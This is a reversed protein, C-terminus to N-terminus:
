RLDNCSYIFFRNTTSSRWANNVWRVDQYAVPPDWEKGRLGVVPHTLALIDLLPERRCLSAVASRDFVAPEPFPAPPCSTEQGFDQTALPKFSEYRHQYTLATGRYFLAGTGQACSFYSSRKLVFWPVRVDGEWYITQHKPVLASLAPPATNATEVFKTWPTREDWSFAAVVVLGIALPALCWAPFSRANGFARTQLVIAGLAIAMLAPGRVLQWADHQWGPIGSRWHLWYYAGTLTLGIPIGLLLLVINRVTPSLPARRREFMYVLGAVALSPFVAFYEVKMDRCALLGIVAVVLAVTTFPAVVGRMRLILPAVFLNAAVALIWTARYQQADVVLVNHALDAGVYDGLMGGAGVVAAAILFRREAPEAMVVAFGALMALDAMQIWNFFSWTGLFCFFDRVRVVSVWAPDFTVLIRAFPQIGLYALGLAAAAGLVALGWWLRRAGAQYVFLAGLGPLTMIPHVFASCGLLILASIARGRLMLGLAWLTMAEAFLRPTAWQEAYNFIVGGPLAIAMAVALLRTRRERFLGGALYILGSIWCAQGLITLVIGANGIGFAALLPRYFTTFLTFNDASGFQFYFDAAFHGPVLPRLAQVTYFRADQFLGIYPRTALWLGVVLLFLWIAAHNEEDSTSPGPASPVPPNEAGRRTQRWPSPEFGFRRYLLTLIPQDPPGFKRQKLAVHPFTAPLALNDARALCAKIPPMQM